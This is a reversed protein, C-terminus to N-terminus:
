SRAQFFNMPGRNRDDRDAVDSQSSGALRRHDLPDSAPIAAAANADRKQAPAVPVFAPDVVLSHHQLLVKGVDRMKLIRIPDSQRLNGDRLQLRLQDDQVVAELM